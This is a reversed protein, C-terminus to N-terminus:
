GNNKFLEDIDSQSVHTKETGPLDDSDQNLRIMESLNYKEEHLNKLSNTYQTPAGCQACYNETSNITHGCSCQAEKLSVGCIGCFAFGSYGEHTCSM